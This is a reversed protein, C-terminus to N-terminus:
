GHTIIKGSLIDPAGLKTKMALAKGIPLTVIKGEREAVVADSVGALLESVALEGMRLATSRDRLTPCGGRQIYGLMSYTPKIGITSEIVVPLESLGSVGEAAVVIFDRKGREYWAKLPEAVQAEFDAHEEPLLMVEAGSAIATHYAIYGAHRGMVEIICCREHSHATDRIKDIADLATNMATDFGITYETCGIDNDITGPIGIIPVGAAHLDLAGRFSGDGGIVVLADLLLDKVAAAAKVVGEPTAFEPCRATRLFTGGRTLVDSVDAHSLLKTERELLGRYGSYIGLVEIGHYLAAHVVGRIAANMGPADGGSTLVGIRKISQGM